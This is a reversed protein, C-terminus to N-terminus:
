KAKRKSLGGEIVTFAPPEETRTKLSPFRLYNGNPLNENVIDSIVSLANITGRNYDSDEFMDQGDLEAVWSVEEKIELLIRRLVYNEKELRKNYDELDAKTM